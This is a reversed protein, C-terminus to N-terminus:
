WQKPKVPLRWPRGRPRMPRAPRRPPSGPRKRRRAPSGRGGNRMPPAGSPRRQRAAPGKPNRSKGTPPPTRNSRRPGTRRRLGSPWRWRGSRKPRRRGAEAEAAKRRAEELEKLHRAAQKKSTAEANRATQSQKIVKAREAAIQRALRDADSELRHAQLQEREIKAKRAAEERRAEDSEKKVRGKAAELERVERGEAQAARTRAARLLRLVEANRPDLKLTQEFSEIAKDWRGAEMHTKGTEIVGRIEKNKKEAKDEETEPVSRNYKTMKERAAIVWPDDPPGIRLRAVWHVAAQKVRDSEEYLLALNSHAAGFGPKFRLATKYAEEARELDGLSELVVGLDNYADAYDPKVHVARRFSAAARQLEGMKQLQLGETRYYLGEQHVIEGPTLTKAGTLSFTLLILTGVPHLFRPSKLFARKM